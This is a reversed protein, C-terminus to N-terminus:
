TPRNNIEVYYDNSYREGLECGLSPVHCAVEVNLYLTREATGLGCTYLSSSSNNQQWELFDPNPERATKSCGGDTALVDGGPTESFWAKFTMNDQVRGSNTSFAIQGTQSAANSTFPYSVLKDAPIHAESIYGTYDSWDDMNGGPSNFLGSANPSCIVIGELESPTGSCYTASSSNNQSFNVEVTCDATVAGTTYTSGSLSGQPCTGDVNDIQYGSSASVEFSKTAGSSVSTEGSPSISGGTGASATVTYATVGASVPCGSTDVSGGQTPCDDENEYYGDGDVDACGSTNIVTASSPTNPCVDWSDPVNDGDGDVLEGGGNAAIYCYGNATAEGLCRVRIDLDPMTLVIGDEGVIVSVEASSPIEITDGPDANGGKITLTKTAQALSDGITGIAAIAIVLATISSYKLHM